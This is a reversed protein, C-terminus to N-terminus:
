VLQRTKLDFVSLRGYPPQQCPVDLPSVFASRKFAYPFGAQPFLMTRQHHSWNANAALGHATTARRHRRRAPHQGRAPRTAPARHCQGLHQRRGCGSLRGHAAGFAAHVSRRLAGRKFQIRCWLQDLPTLGWMMSETLDDGALSPFGTTYPQTPATWEGPAAGQPVPRQEVPDIPEGTRRDLVFLQGRKTPATLAPLTPGDAAPLDVLVPQSAVDYDWLDHNVTRFSWRVQGTAVDIAVISSAYREAVPTRRAGFNDPLSDGTPVYVLGLSEDGSFV